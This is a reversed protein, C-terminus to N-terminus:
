DLPNIWCYRGDRTKIVYGKKHLWNLMGALDDLDEFYGSSKVFEWIEYISAYPNTILAEQILGFRPTRKSEQRKVAKIERRVTPNELLEELSSKIINRSDKIHKLLVKDKEDARALSQAIRILNEKIKPMMANIKVNARTKSFIDSFTIELSEKINLTADIIAKEIDLSVMPQIQRSYVVQLWIDEDIAERIKTLEIDHTYPLKDLEYPLTIETEAFRKFM